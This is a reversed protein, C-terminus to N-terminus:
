LSHLDFSTSMNWCFENGGWWGVLLQFRNLLRARLGINWKKADNELLFYCNGKIQTEAGAFLGVLQYTSAPLWDVGYGLHLYICHGFPMVVMKSSVLYMSSFVQPGKPEFRISKAAFFDQAGLTLAPRHDKERLLNLRLGATRDGTGGRFHDPRVMAGFGELFPLVGLNVAFVSSVHYPQLKAAYLKPIRSFTVNIVGDCSTYATPIVLMGSYGLLNTSIQWTHKDGAPVSSTIFVCVLIVAFVYSRNIM